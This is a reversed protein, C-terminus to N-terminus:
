SISLNASMWPSSFTISLASILVKKSTRKGAKRRRDPLHDPRECGTRQKIMKATEFGDLGPMQVDLIIVDVSRELLVALATMGSTAQIVEVGLRETLLAELTFLNNPNDDVILVSFQTLDLATLRPAERCSMAPRLGELRYSIM